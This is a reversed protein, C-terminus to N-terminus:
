IRVSYRFQRTEFFNVRALSMLARNAGARARCDRLANLSQESRYAESTTGHNNAIEFVERCKRPFAM